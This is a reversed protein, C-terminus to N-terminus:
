DTRNIKKYADENINRFGMMELYEIYNKIDSKKKVEIDEPNYYGYYPNTYTKYVKREFDVLLNFNKAATHNKKWSNDIYYLHLMMGM